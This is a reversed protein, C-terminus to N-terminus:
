AALTYCRCVGDDGATVLTLASEEGVGSLSAAPGPRLVAFDLIMGAHGAAYDVRTSVSLGRLPGLDYRHINCHLAWRSRGVGASLWPKIGV